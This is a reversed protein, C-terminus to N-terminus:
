RARGPPPWSPLEIPVPRGPEAALAALVAQQRPAGLDLSRGAALVQIEGLLRFEM